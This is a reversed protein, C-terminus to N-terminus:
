RSAATTLESLVYAMIGGHRVYDIEVPTDLRLTVTIRESRGNDRNVVLTLAAGPKVRDDLGILDFAESGDLALPAASV